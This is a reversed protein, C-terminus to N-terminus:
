GGCRLTKWELKTLVAQIKGACGSFSVRSGGFVLSGVHKHPAPALEVRCGKFCLVNEGSVEAGLSVLYDQMLWVPVGYYDHVLEGPKVEQTCGPDFYAVLPKLTEVRDAAGHMAIANM